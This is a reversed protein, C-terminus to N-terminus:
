IFLIDLYYYALFIQYISISVLINRHHACLSYVRYRDRGFMDILIWLSDLRYLGMLCFGLEWIHSDELVSRYHNGVICLIYSYIHVIYYLIWWSDRINWDGLPYLIPSYSYLLINRFYKLYIMNIIGVM